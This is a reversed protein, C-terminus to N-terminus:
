ASRPIEALLKKFDKWEVAGWIETQAHSITRIITSVKIATEQDPAHFVDLYDHPGTIVYNAVWQIDLGADKLARMAKGEKEELNLKPHFAECSLRTGMIFLPM